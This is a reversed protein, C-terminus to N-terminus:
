RALVKFGSMVWPAIYTTDPGSLEIKLHKAEVPDFSIITTRDLANGSSVKNWNTGDLSVKIEYFQPASSHYVFNPWKGTRHGESNFELQTIRKAEPMEFGFWMGKSQQKESTWGEYSFAGSPLGKSGKRVPGSHSATVKWNNDYKVEKPISAYLEKFTYPTTRSKTASRIKAVQEPTVISSENEFNTRIFSAIAAIWEDNEKMPVMVAGAYAEGQIDGSLGHMIAKVVYEPHLKVRNSGVLAPAMLQGNGAPTGLGTSGHCSFCLEKYIDAGKELLAQETETYDKGSRGFFSTITRPELVQNGILNIGKSKSRKMALRAADERGKLEFLRTTMMARMAVDDDEDKTMNLFDEALQGDGAKYISEGAYMAMIRMRPNPDKMLTRVLSGTLKGIGELCWLAHFRANLNKSTTALKILDPAISQDRRQVIVQQAMDRWWGNPHSLYQLLESTKQNYMKPKRKDREMGKYTLRWIRGLGIVKDLQYQQIKARLYSGEGTWQGEQIIGHYMDCIYMTGDPATVMDVPRFLPDTSRLFESEKDQYVNQLQILGESKEQRIQRVIRAVPEGYFYQGYLDKPLKDGRFIDNGSAGTVLNLSGDPQRIQGMGGQMDGILIPAGYPVRFGKQFEISDEVVYDGYHIPYQFHSPIGNSGGQFWLKGDDDHTIGWQAKNSGTPERKVGTSTERVRFPNVTSYLWNDMGWYLFAQQHEVNGSRGFNDTFFEKKDAKGDKNTDTYKYVVDDNSEMTLVADPGYPLVFRPFILGSVFPTGKEYVGDNDLDEWRSIVSQPTLTNESDLNLMYTRLELVYMRGNGDFIIQAPQSIQPETLVPEMAYGEPLLFRQKEEEVTLPLVPPQPSLDVGKWYPLTTDANEPLDIKPYFEPRTEAGVDLPNKLPVSEQCSFSFICVCLCFTTAKLTRM